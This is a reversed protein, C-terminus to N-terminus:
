THMSLGVTSDLLDDRIRYHIIRTSGAPRMYRSSIDAAAGKPAKPRMPALSSCGQLCLSYESNTPGEVAPWRHRIFRAALGLLMLVVLVLALLLGALLVWDPDLLISNALLSIALLSLPRLRIPTPYRLALNVLM